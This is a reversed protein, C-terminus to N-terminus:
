ARGKQMPTLSINENGSTDQRIHKACVMCVCFTDEKDDYEAIYSAVNGCYCALISQM